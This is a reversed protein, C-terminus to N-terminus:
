GGTGLSTRKGKLHADAGNADVGVTGYASHRCKPCRGVYWGYREVFRIQKLEFTIDRIEEKMRRTTAKLVDRRSELYRKHSETIDEPKRFTQSGEKYPRPM